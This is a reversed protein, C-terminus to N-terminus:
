SNQNVKKSGGGEENWLRKFDRVMVGFVDGRVVKWYV